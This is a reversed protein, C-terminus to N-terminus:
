GFHSSPPVWGAAPHVIRQSRARAPQQRWRQRECCNQVLRQRRCPLAWGPPPPWWGCQALHRPAASRASALLPRQCLVLACMWAAIAGLPGGDRLGRAALERLASDLEPDPPPHRQRGQEARLHASLMQACGAFDSAAAACCLRRGLPARCGQSTALAAALPPSASALLSLVDSSSGPAADCAVCAARLRDALEASPVHQEHCASLTLFGRLLASGLAAPRVRLTSPAAPQTLRGRGPTLLFLRDNLAALLVPTEAAADTTALSALLHVGGRWCLQWLAGGATFLLAPGFWLFSAPPARLQPATSCDACLLPSLSPGELVRLRGASSLVACVHRGGRLAQWELSLPAEGPALRLLRRPLALSAGAEAVADLALRGLEAGHVCYLV